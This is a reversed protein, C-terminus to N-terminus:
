LKKIFSGRHRPSPPAAPDANGTTGKTEPFRGPPVSRRVARRSPRSRMSRTTTSQNAGPSGAHKPTPTRTSDAPVTSRAPASAPASPRTIGAAPTAPREGHIASRRWLLGAGAILATALFLALWRRRHPGSRRGVGKGASAPSVAIATAISASAQIGKGRAMPADGSTTQAAAAFAEAFEIVSLFRDAKEKSLARRLVPDLVAGAPLSLEALPRPEQHVVQFLTSPVDTGAFPACGTLMEYAIVALAFEDTRGDVEDQLGRAQEPAMYRPTGVLKSDGTLAEGTRVKSIGFDLVKVFERKQGDTRVLFINQPKLERHVVGRGHAAAVASAVQEVIPV